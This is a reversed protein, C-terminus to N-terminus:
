RSAKAHKQHPVQEMIRYQIRWCHQCCNTHLFKTITQGTNQDGGIQHSSPNIYLMDWHDAINIKRSVLLVVDVPIYSTAHISSIHTKLVYFLFLWFFQCEVAYCTLETLGYWLMCWHWVHATRFVRCPYGKRNWKYQVQVYWACMCVCVCVYVCVHVCVCLIPRQPLNPLRPRAMVRTVLSSWPDSAAM